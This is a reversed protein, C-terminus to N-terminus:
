NYYTPVRNERRWKTYAGISLAVFLVSVLLYGAVEQPTMGLAVAIRILLEELLTTEM